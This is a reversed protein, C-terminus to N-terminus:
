ELRWLKIQKAIHLHFSHVRSWSYSSAKLMLLELYDLMACKKAIDYPKIMALFSAVFQPLDIKDSDISNSTGPAFKHPWDVARKKKIAGASM